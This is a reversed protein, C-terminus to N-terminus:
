GIPQRRWRSRKRKNGDAASSGSARHSVSTRHDSFPRRFFTLKLMGRRCEHRRRSLFRHSADYRRNQEEGTGDMGLVVLEGGGFFGFAPLKEEVALVHAAPVIRARLVRGTVGPADFVATQLRMGIRFDGLIQERLIGEAIELQGEFPADRRAAVASDFVTDLVVDEQATSSDAAKLIEDVEGQAVAARIAGGASLVVDDAELVLNEIVLAIGIGAGAEAVGRAGKIVHDRGFAVCRLRDALEVLRADYHAAIVGLM